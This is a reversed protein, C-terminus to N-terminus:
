VSRANVTILLIGTTIRKIFHPKVYFGKNAFAGYAGAMQLCSANAGIAVSLGEKSPISIGLNKAFAKGRNIGVDSLTRVAPVNRSQELAHRM